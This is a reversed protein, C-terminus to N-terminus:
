VERFCGLEESEISEGVDRVWGLVWRELVEETRAPDIIQLGLKSLVHM